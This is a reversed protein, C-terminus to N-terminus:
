KKDRLKRVYSRVDRLQACRVRAQARTYLSREHTCSTNSWERIATDLMGIVENLADTRATKTKEVQQNTQANLEVMQARLRQVEYRLTLITRQDSMTVNKGARQADCEIRFPAVEDAAGEAVLEAVDIPLYIEAVRKETAAWRDRREKEARLEKLKPLWKRSWADYHLGGYTAKRVGQRELFAISNALHSDTMQRMPIITGDATKWVPGTSKEIDALRAEVISCRRTAANVLLVANDTVRVIKERLASMEQWIATAQTETIKPAPRRKPAAKKTAKKTM